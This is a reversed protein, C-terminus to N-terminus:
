FKCNNHIYSFYNVKQTQCLKQSILFLTKPAGGVFVHFKRRFFFVVSEGNLWPRMGNIAGLAAACTAFQNFSMRLTPTFKEFVLTWLRRM